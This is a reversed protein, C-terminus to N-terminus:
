GPQTSSFHRKECSDDGMPSEIIRHNVLAIQMWGNFKDLLVEPLIRAAGSIERTACYQIFDEFTEIELVQPRTPTLRM